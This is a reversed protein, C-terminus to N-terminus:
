ITNELSRTKLPTIGTNKRKTLAKRRQEIEGIQLRLDSRLNEFPKACKFDTTSEQKKVLFNRLREVLSGIRLNM